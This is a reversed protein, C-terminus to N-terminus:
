PITINTDLAMAKPQRLGSDFWRRFLIFEYGQTFANITGDYATNSRRVQLGGWELILLQPWAGYIMEGDSNGSSGGLQNSVAWPRGFWSPGTQTGSPDWTFLPRNDGDTLKIIEKFVLGHTAWAYQAFTGANQIIPEAFLDAMRAYSIAAAGSNPTPVDPDNIIGLPESQSHTGRLHLLDMKLALEETIDAIIMSDVDPSTNMMQLLETIAVYADVGKPQFHLEGIKFSTKTAAQGESSSAVSSRSTKRPIKVPSGTLGSIVRAGLQRAVSTARLQDIFEGILVEPPVLFGGESDTVSVFDKREEAQQCLDIEFGAAKKHKQSGTAVYSALKGLSFKKADPHGGLGPIWGQAAKKELDKLIKEVEDVKKEHEDLKAAHEDLKTGFDARLGEVGSKVDAGVQQLMQELKTPETATTMTLRWLQRPRIGAGPTGM